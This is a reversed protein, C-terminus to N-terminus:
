ANREEVDTVLSRLQVLVHRDGAEGTSFLDKLATRAGTDGAEVRRFAERLGVEAMGLETDTFAMRDAWREIIERVTEM